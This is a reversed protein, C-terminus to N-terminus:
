AQWPTDKHATANLNFHTQNEASAILLEGETKSILLDLVNVFNRAASIAGRRFDMEKETMMPNDAMQLCAQLVDDKIAETVTAWGPSHRVERLGRLTSEMAEIENDTM